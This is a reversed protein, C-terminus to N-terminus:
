AVVEELAFRIATQFSKRDGSRVRFVRGVNEPDVSGTVEVVHGTSVASSGAVPLHLELPAVTWQHEGAQPNSPFAGRFRQLKCKGSYVPAGYTTSVVGTLSDTANGTVPRVTCADLMLSEARQRGRLMLRQAPIM